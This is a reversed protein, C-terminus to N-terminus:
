KIKKENKQIIKTGQFVFNRHIRFVNETDVPRLTVSLILNIKIISKTINYYVDWHINMRKKRYCLSEYHIPVFNIGHDSFNPYQGVPITEQAAFMKFSKHLNCIWRWAVTAKIWFFTNQPCVSITESTTSFFYIGSGEYLIDGGAKM